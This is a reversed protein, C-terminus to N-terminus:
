ALVKSLQRRAAKALEHAAKVHDMIIQDDTPVSQIISAGLHAIIENLLDHPGAAIAAGVSLRKSIEQLVAGPDVALGTRDSDIRLSAGPQTLHFAVTSINDELFRAEDDASAPSLYPDAAMTKADSM